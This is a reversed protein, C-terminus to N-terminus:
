DRQLLCRVVVLLITSTCCELVTIRDYYSYILFKAPTVQTMVLAPMRPRKELTQTDFSYFLSAWGSMKYKREM